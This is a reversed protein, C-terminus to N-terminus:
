QVLLKFNINTEPSVLIYDYTRLVYKFLFLWENM